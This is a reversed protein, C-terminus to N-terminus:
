LLSQLFDLKVKGLGVDFSRFSLRLFVSVLSSCCGYVLGQFMVFGNSTGMISMMTSVCCSSSWLCQWLFFVRKCFFLCSRKM